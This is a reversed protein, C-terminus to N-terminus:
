GKTIIKQTKPGCNFLFDFASINPIFNGWASKSLRDRQFVKKLGGLSQLFKIKKVESGM